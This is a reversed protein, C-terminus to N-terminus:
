DTKGNGAGETAVKRRLARNTLLLKEVCADGTQQKNGVPKVQEERELRVGASECADLAFLARAMILLSPSQRSGDRAQEARRRNRCPHALNQYASGLACALRHPHRLNEDADYKQSD